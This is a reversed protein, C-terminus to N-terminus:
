CHHTPVHQKVYSHSEASECLASSSIQKGKKAVEHKTQKDFFLSFILKNLIDAPKYSLEYNSVIPETHGLVSVDFERVYVDMIESISVQMM